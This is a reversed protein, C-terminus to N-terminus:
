NVIGSAERMASSEQEMVHELQYQISVADAISIKRKVKSKDLLWAKSRDPSWRVGTPQRVDAVYKYIDLSGDVRQTKGMGQRKSERDFTGEFRQGSAYYYRGFGAIADGSWGGCYLDGNAFYFKGQGSRKGNRYTGTYINGNVFRRTGSGHQKGAKWDGVYESGDAFQLTGAGHRLGHCFAGTYVDGNAWTMVGNGHREGANSFDGQYTATGAICTSTAALPDQANLTTWPREGATSSTESATSLTGSVPTADDDHLECMLCQGREVRGEVTLPKRKNKSCSQSNSSNENTKKGFLKQLVSRKEVLEFLQQGCVACQGEDLRQQALVQHIQVGSLSLRPRPAEEPSPQQNQLAGAPDSYRRLVNPHDSGSLM